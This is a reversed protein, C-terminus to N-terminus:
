VCWCCKRYERDPITQWEHNQLHNELKECWTFVEKPNGAISYFSPSKVDTVKPKELMATVRAIPDHSEPKAYNELTELYLDQTKKMKDVEIDQPMSGVKVGM